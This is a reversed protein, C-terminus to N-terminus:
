AASALKSAGRRISGSRGRRGACSSGRGKAYRRPSPVNRRSQCMQVCCRFRAPAEDLDAVVQRRASPVPAAAHEQLSTAATPEVEVCTSLQVLAGTIGTGSRESQGPARQGLPLAEYRAHGHAQTRREGRLGCGSQDCGVREDRLARTEAQLQASRCASAWSRTTLLVATTVDM